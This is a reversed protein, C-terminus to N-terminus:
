KAPTVDTSGGLKKMLWEMAPNPHRSETSNADMRNAPNFTLEYFATAAIGQEMDPAQKKFGEVSSAISYKYAYHERLRFLREHRAGAFRVLWVGPILLLARAAIQALVDSTTHPDVAKAVVVDPVSPFVARLLAQLGPFVYLAIPLSLLVLVAISVYFSIEARKLEGEIKSQLGSFSSALGVNTAGRLLGESEAILRAVEDQEKVLQDRVSLLAASEDDFRKLRTALQNDFAEFQAQYANVTALLAAAREDAARIESLKNTAEAAYEAITKRENQGEQSLRAIENQVVAVKELLVQADKDKQKIQEALDEAVDFVAQSDDRRDEIEQALKGFDGVRPNRLIFRIQYWALFTPDLLEFIRRLPKAFQHVTDNGAVVSFDATNIQKPGGNDKVTKLVNLAGAFQAELETLKALLASLLSKPIFPGTDKIGMGDILSALTSTSSIIDALTAESGPIIADQQFSQGGTDEFKKLADKLEHKSNEVKLIAAAIEELTKENM